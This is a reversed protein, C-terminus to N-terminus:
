LAASRADLGALCLEQQKPDRPFRFARPAPEEAGNPYVPVTQAVPAAKTAGLIAAQPLGAYVQASVGFKPGRVPECSCDEPEFGQDDAPVHGTASSAIRLGSQPRELEDEMGSLIGLPFGAEPYDDDAENGWAAM